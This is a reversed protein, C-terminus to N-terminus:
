ILSKNVWKRMMCEDGEVVYGLKEYFVTNSAKCYLALKICGLHELGLKNLAKM